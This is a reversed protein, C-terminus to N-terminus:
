KRVFLVSKGFLTKKEIDENKPPLVWFLLKTDPNQTTKVAFYSVTCRCPILRSAIEKRNSGFHTKTLRNLPQSISLLQLM